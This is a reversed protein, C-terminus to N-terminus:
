GITHTYVRALLARTATAGNAAAACRSGRTAAKMILANLLRSHSAASRSGTCVRGGERVGTLCTYIYTHLPRVERRERWGRNLGTKQPLSLAGSRKVREAEGVSRSVAYLVRSLNLLALSRGAPPSLVDDYLPQHRTARAM